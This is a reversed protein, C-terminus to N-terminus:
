LVFVLLNFTPMSKEILIVDGTILNKLSQAHRESVNYKAWKGVGNGEVLQMDQAIGIKNKDPQCM